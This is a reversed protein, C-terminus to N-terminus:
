TEDPLGLIRSVPELHRAYNKWRGVSSKYLPKRVQDYSATVVLRKSKHFDLCADEWELGCFSLVREVWTRPEAVLEEYPVDLIPIPLVSKWHQMLEEYAKYVQALSELDYANSHGTAFETFYNSLCVDRPDRRCHLIRADPFIQSIFGLYVYNGPLKDTVRLASPAMARLRELYASSLADLRDQSLNRVGDPYYPITAALNGIDQTEGRAHVRSHCALIQELLSTGSRPMGVIFLPLTSRVRSRPLSGIADSAYVAKLRNIELLHVRHDHPAHKMRNAINAHAFARDYQKAKDYLKVLAFHLTRRDTTSLGARAVIQELLTIAQDTKGITPALAAAVAAAEPDAFGGEIATRVCEWAGQKDGEFELVRGHLVQVSPDEPALAQAQELVARAAAPDRALLVNCLIKLAPLSRPHMALVARAYAMAADLDGSQLCANALMIRVAPQDPHQRDIQEYVDRAELYRGDFTLLAAKFFLADTGGSTEQMVQDCLRWADQIRGLDLYIAGLRCLAQTDSRNQRCYAEALAAAEPDARMALIRALTLVAERHWPHQALYRRLPKEAEVHRGLQALTLGLELSVDAPCGPLNLARQLAEAALSLDGTSQAANALNRWGQLSRPALEVARRACRQAEAYNGQMGHIASLNIWPEARSGHDRAAQEFAARAGALDGRQALGSGKALLESLNSM